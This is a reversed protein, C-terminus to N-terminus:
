QNDGDCSEFLLQHCGLSAAKELKVLRFGLAEVFQTLKEATAYEYPYGGVWDIWDVYLKMGRRRPGFIDKWAVWPKLLLLHKALYGAYVVVFLSLAYLQRIGCRSPLRHYTRKM